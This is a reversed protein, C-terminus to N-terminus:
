SEHCSAETLQAAVDFDKMLQNIARLRIWKWTASGKQPLDSAWTRDGVWTPLHGLTLGRGRASRSANTHTWTSTLIQRLIPRRPPTRVSLSHGCAPTSLHLYAQYHSTCPQTISGEPFAHTALCRQAANRSVKDANQLQSCSMDSCTSPIATSGAMFSTLSLPTQYPLEYARSPLACM